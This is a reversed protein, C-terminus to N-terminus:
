EKPCNCTVKQSIQLALPIESYFIKSKETDSISFNNILTSKYRGCNKM